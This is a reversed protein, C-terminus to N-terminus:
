VFWFLLKDPVIGTTLNKFLSNLHIVQEMDHAGTVHENYNRGDTNEENTEDQNTEDGNTEIPLHETLFRHAEACTQFCKFKANKVGKVQSQTEAWTQYIGRTRGHAVAYFKQKTM